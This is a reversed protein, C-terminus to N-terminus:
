EPEIVSDTISGSKIKPIQVGGLCTIYTIINYTITAQAMGDTKITPSSYANCTTSFCIPVTGSSQSAGGFTITQWRWPSSPSQKYRTGPFYGTFVANYNSFYHLNYFDWKYTIGGAQGGSISGTYSEEGTIGDALENGYETTYGCNSNSSGSGGGGGNQNCGYCYCDSGTYEISYVQGNVYIVWWHDVCFEIGAEMPAREVSQIQEDTETIEQNEIHKSFLRTGDLSFKIISVELNAPIEEEDFVNIYVAMIEPITMGTTIDSTRIFIYESNVVEGVESVYLVFLKLINLEANQYDNISFVYKNSEPFYSCSEWMINQPFLTFEDRSYQGADSTKHLEYWNKLYSIKSTNVQELPTFTEKKCSFLGVIFLLLLLHQKKM